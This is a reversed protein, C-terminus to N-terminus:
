THDAPERAPHHGSDQSEGAPAREAGVVAALQALFAAAVIERAATGLEALADALAGDVKM